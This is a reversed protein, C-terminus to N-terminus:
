KRSAKVSIGEGIYPLEFIGELGHETLILYMFWKYLILCM